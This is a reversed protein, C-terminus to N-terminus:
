HKLIAIAVTIVAWFVTVGGAIYAMKMALRDTKSSLNEIATELKGFKGQNETHRQDQRANHDTCQQVHMAVTTAGQAVAVMMPDIKTTLVDLKASLNNRSERAEEAMLGLTAQHTVLDHTVVRLKTIEGTANEQNAEIRALRERQEVGERPAYPRDSM